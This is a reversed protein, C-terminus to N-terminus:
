VEETVHMVIEGLWEQDVEFNTPFEDMAHADLAWEVADFNDHDGELEELWSVPVEYTIKHQSICVLRVKSM